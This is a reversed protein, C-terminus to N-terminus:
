MEELMLLLLVLSGSTLILNHIQFLFTLKFPSRSSRLDAVPVSVKTYVRRLFRPLRAVSSHPRNPPTHPRSLAPFRTSSASSALHPIHRSSLSWTPSAPPLPPEFAPHSRLHPRRAVGHWVPVSADAQEDGVYPEGAQGQYAMCIRASSTCCTKGLVKAVATGEQDGFGM